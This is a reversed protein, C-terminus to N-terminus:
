QSRTVFSAPTPLPIGGLCCLLPCCLCPGSWARRGYLSKGDGCRKEPEQDMFQNGSHIPPLQWHIGQSLAHAQVNTAESATVLSEDQVEVHWLKLSSDLACWSKLADASFLVLEWTLAFASCLSCFEGDLTMVCLPLLCLCPSWGWRPLAAGTIDRWIEGAWM